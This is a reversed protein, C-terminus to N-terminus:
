ARCQMDIVTTNCMPKATRCSVCVANHFAEPVRQLGARLYYELASTLDVQQGHLGRYYVDGLYHLATGHENADAQKM